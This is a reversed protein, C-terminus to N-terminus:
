THIHKSNIVSFCKLIGIIMFADDGAMARFSNQTAMYMSGIRGVSSRYVSTIDCYPNWICNLLVVSINPSATIDTIYIIFHKKIVGVHFQGEIKTQADINKVM